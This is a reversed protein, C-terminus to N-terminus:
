VHRMVRCAGCWVRIYYLYSINYGVANEVGLDSDFACMPFIVHTKSLFRMISIGFVYFLEWGDDGERVRERRREKGRRETEAM